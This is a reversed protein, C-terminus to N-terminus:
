GMGPPATSAARRRVPAAHDSLHAALQDDTQALFWRLQAWGQGTNRLIYHSNAPITAARYLTILARAVVRGMVLYPITALEADTLDAVSLYGRLLDRGDAFLDVEARDPVQRPLQNLLATAVDIAVATYVADGFDIIGQVFRAADHDVIINSKSFDNHLVCRRLSSIVPAARDFRALGAELLDRQAPDAVTDLLPRLTPLHQVDWALVRHQAPHTFSQTGHRLQGLARGVDAREAPSSGTSDLPTGAVYSMLRAQRAQGADDRLTVLLQGARDPFLRPVPVNTGSRAVHALLRVEFDVEDPDEAPNSIKLVYRRQDDATIVFTDDKETAVRAGRGRVGWRSALVRAAEAESMAVHAVTLGEASGLLRPSSSQPNM